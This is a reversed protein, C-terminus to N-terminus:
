ICRWCWSRPRGGAGRRAARRSRLPVLCRGLPADDLVILQPQTAARARLVATLAQVLLRQRADPTIDALVNRQAEDADGAIDALVASWRDLSEPRSAPRRHQARRPHHNRPRAEPARERPRRRSPLSLRQRLLAGGGLVNRLGADRGQSPAGPRAAVERDGGRRVDRRAPRPGPEGGRAGGRALAAGAATRRAAGRRRAGPAARPLARALRWAEMPEAKGKLELPPLQAFDFAEAALRRTTPGVYIQGPEAAQQLRAAVNVADGTVTYEHQQPGSGAGGVVEGTNVGIRVELPTPATTLADRIALATHLAREADDDHAQPAGYLAMVADGIYKEVSGGYREVERAVTAFYARQVDRVEEPDASEARSTFGVLDVFLVTVLRREESVTMHSCERACTGIGPEARARPDRAEKCSEAERLWPAATVALDHGPYSDAAHFPWAPAAQTAM